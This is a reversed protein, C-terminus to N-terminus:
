KETRPASSSPRCFATAAGPGFIVHPRLSCTAIEDGNAALLEKEAAIKSDAYPAQSISSYPMTEDGNLIDKGEYVASATSVYVLKPVKEAKAAALVTQSGGHNM